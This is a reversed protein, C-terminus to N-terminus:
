LTRLGLRPKFEYLSLGVCVLAAGIWVETVLPEQNLWSSLCLGTIPTILAILSIRNATVRKLLFYYLTYGLGTGILGLYILSSIARTSTDINPSPEVILAAILFLPMAFLLNGTTIQMGSLPQDKVLQRSVVSTVSSVLTALLSLVVGSFSAEELKLGASFVLYLGGIGLLLGAIRSPTLRTEPEVLASLAGTMLPSVGFLVAIWGSPILQAAAYFLSMALFASISGVAYIRLAAKNMPLGQRLAMIAAACVTVGIIVRLLASTM